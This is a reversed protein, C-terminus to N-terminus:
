ATFVLRGTDAKRNLKELQTTAKKQEKLQDNAISDGAALGSLAAASFSGAVDIKSSSTAVAAGIDGLDPLGAPMKPSTDGPLAGADGAAAFWDAFFAEQQAAALAETKGKLQEELKSVSPDKGSPPQMLKDAAKRNKEQEAAIRKLEADRKAEIDKIEQAAADRREARARAADSTIAKNKEQAKTQEANFAEIAKNLGILEAIYGVIKGLWEAMKKLVVVVGGIVTAVAGFAIRAVKAVSNAVASFVLGFARWLAEAAAVAGKWALSLLTVTTNWALAIGKAILGFTAAFASWAATALAVFGNWAKGLMHITFNWIAGIAEVAAAILQVAMSLSTGIYSVVARFAAILGGGITSAITTVFAVSGKILGTVSNWTTAITTTFSSWLDRMAVVALTWETSINAIARSASSQMAAWADASYRAVQRITPGFRASVWGLFDSWAKRLVLMGRTWELDISAWLIKTALALNGAAIADGMSRFTSLLTAKLGAFQRGLWGVAAKGSETYKAWATAGALLARTVWGIPSLLFAVTAALATFATATAAVMVSLSTMLTGLVVLGAGLAASVAVTKAIAVVAERHTTVWASLTNAANAVLAALKRITPSLAQGIEVGLGELASMLVDVSGRLTDMQIGAVRAATGASNGLKGTADALRGAGQALLEAAGAAQRDPFIQGLIALQQGSGMGGLARQLQALINTLGVFRGRADLTRIGLAQLMDAADKGPSLLTLLMGRLTTGAMEGQIGANSLLQIAATIEGLSIGTTKAIPGVFKFAEGLMTIDTNATTAAKALVDVVGGLDEAAIGMGRMVKTAIDAAQAIDIQATAALDLTPGIATMIEKVSFGAQAFNGMAQAAQAASFITDAGLKRALKSLADFEEGSANTIAKVRAMNAEFDAFVKSSALGPIAAASSIRLFEGGIARVSAGFARLRAAAARLGAVLADNKSGIEVYAKGARIGGVNGAM